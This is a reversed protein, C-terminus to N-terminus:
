FTSIQITQDVSRKRWILRVGSSTRFNNLSGKVINRFNSATIALSNFLRLYGTACNHCLKHILWGREMVTYHGSICFVSLLWMVHWTNCLYMAPTIPIPASNSHNMCSLPGTNSNWCHVASYSRRLLLGITLQLATRIFTHCAMSFYAHTILNRQRHCYTVYRWCTNIGPWRRLTTPSLHLQEIM